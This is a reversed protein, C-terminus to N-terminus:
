KLLTNTELKTPTKTSQMINKAAKAHNNSRTDTGVASGCVGDSVHLLSSAAFITWISSRFSLTKATVLRSLILVTALARFTNSESWFVSFCHRGVHPFVQDTLKKESRLYAPYLCSSLM